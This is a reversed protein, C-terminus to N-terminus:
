EKDPKRAAIIAAASIIMAAAIVSIITNDGTNVTKIDGTNNEATRNTESSTNTNESSNDTSSNKTSSETNKNNDTTKDDSTNEDSPKNDGSNEDSQKEATLVEVKIDSMDFISTTGNEFRYLAALATYAQYTSMYNAEDGAYHSFTHDDEQCFGLLADYVTNGSKIFREDENINIGLSCLATLVQACSECDYSGYSRFMGDENQNESLFTLAKDISSTIKDNKNYYPALSQIAMATMDADSGDDVGSWTDITWGGDAQQAAIINDTLKEVTTQESGDNTTKLEYGHSNLAILAYIDGNVGQMNVFEFDSLPSLLDYGYFDSADVGLSTLATVVGSNATSRTASLKASGTIELQQKLSNIYQSKVDDNMLGFRSLNIVDWENGVAANEPFIEKYAERFIKVAITNKNKSLQSFISEANELVNYNSVESKQKDTLSDYFERAKKIADGSSATVEGIASIFSESEQVKTDKQPTQINVSLRYISEEANNYNSQMWSSNATGIIITDGDQVPIAENFKYDTGSEAPTYNNKYVKARYAKNTTQPRVTLEQTDQPLEIVYDYNDSKFEPTVAGSSLIIGSLSTDSGSWDYGIDAGWACSYIFRIEDGDELKGSSITYASVSEDTIWDDITIMWGGMTGGDDSSLGNIETIYGYEAGSQTYGKKELASVFLSVASSQEDADVWEDMLIGTWDAGNEESLTTNEVIIRVKPKNEEASVSIASMSTLLGAATLASLIRSIKKM